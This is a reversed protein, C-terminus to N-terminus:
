PTASLIHTILEHLAPEPPSRLGMLWDYLIPDPFELLRVFSAHQEANLDALGREVFAHLLLDLELM